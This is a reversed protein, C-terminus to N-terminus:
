GVHVLTGRQPLSWADGVWDQQAGQDAPEPTFSHVWSERGIGQAASFSAPGPSKEKAELVGPREWPCIDGPVLLCLIM